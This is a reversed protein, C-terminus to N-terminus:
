KWIRLAQSRQQANRRALSVQNKVQYTGPMSRGPLAELMEITSPFNSSDAIGIDTLFKAAAIAVGDHM